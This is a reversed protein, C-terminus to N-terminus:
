KINVLTVSYHRLFLLYFMGYPRFVFPELWNCNVDCCTTRFEDTPRNGEDISFRKQEYRKIGVTEKELTEGNSGLFGEVGDSCEAM